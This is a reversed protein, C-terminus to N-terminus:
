TPRPRGASQPRQDAVAALLHRQNEAVVWGRCASEGCRCRIAWGAPWAYDITLEDGPRVTDIALVFLRRAAATDRRRNIDVARFYFNPRCSHNIFRFPPDPELCCIDGLDFCYRSSYDWDAIVTGTIEGIVEDARYHRRAFLGWGIRTRRVHVATSSRPARVSRYARDASRIASPATM